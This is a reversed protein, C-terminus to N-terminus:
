RASRRAGPGSGAEAQQFNERTDVGRRVASARARRECLRALAKLHSDFELLLLDPKEDQVLKSLRNWPEYDVIVQSKATVRPDKGFIRLLKRLARASAAGMSLSQDPPVVVVGVLIIEADFHRASDLAHIGPGEHVLPILITRIPMFGSQKQM